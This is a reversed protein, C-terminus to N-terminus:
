VKKGFLEIGQGNIEIIVKCDQTEPSSNAWSDVLLGTTYSHTGFAQWFLYGGDQINFEKNSGNIAQFYDQGSNRKAIIKKKFTNGNTDSFEVDPTGGSIQSNSGAWFKHTGIAYYNLYNNGNIFSDQHAGYGNQYASANVQGMQIGVGYSGAGIYQVDAVSNRFTATQAIGTQTSVVDLKSAPTNTGIGIRSNTFDIHIQNTAIWAGSHYALMQGETGTPLFNAKLTAWSYKRTQMPTAPAVYASVDFEDADNFTTQTYFYQSIKIGM